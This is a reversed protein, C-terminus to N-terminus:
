TIWRGEDDVDMDDLDVDAGESEEDEEESEEGEGDESEEDEGGLEGDEGESEEDELADVMEEDFDPVAKKGGQKTSIVDDGTADDEDESGVLLDAKM